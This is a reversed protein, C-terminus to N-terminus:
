DRNETETLKNPKQRYQQLQCLKMRRKHSFLIGNYEYAVTEKDKWRNISVKTAEMNQSNYIVSHPVHPYM